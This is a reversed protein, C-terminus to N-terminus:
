RSDTAVRADNQSILLVSDFDETVVLDSLYYQNNVESVVLADLKEEAM